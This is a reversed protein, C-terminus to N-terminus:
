TYEYSIIDRYKKDISIQKDRLFKNEMMRIYEERLSM